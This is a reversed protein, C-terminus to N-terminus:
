DFQVGGMVRNVASQYVNWEEQKERLLRKGQTTIEYYKRSRGNEAQKIVSIVAGQQELSHLIPYLTGEQLCFIRESQQELEKIIQYGYMSQGELLKLVLMSTGLAMFRKDM